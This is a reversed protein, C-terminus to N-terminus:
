RGGRGLLVAAVACIAALGFFLGLIAVCKETPAYTVAPGYCVWSRWISAACFFAALMGFGKAGTRFLHNMWCRTGEEVGTPGDSFQGAPTRQLMAPWFRSSPQPASTSACQSAAERPLELYVVSDRRNLLGAPAEFGRAGDRFSRRGGSVISSVTEDRDCPTKADTAFKRM